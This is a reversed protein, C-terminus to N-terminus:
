MMFVSFEPKFRCLIKFVITVVINKGIVPTM